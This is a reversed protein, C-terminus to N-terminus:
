GIKGEARQVSSARIGGCFREQKDEKKKILWGRGGAARRGEIKVEMEWGDVAGEGEIWSGAEGHWGAAQQVDHRVVLLVIPLGM